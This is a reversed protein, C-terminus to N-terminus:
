YSLSSSRAGRSLQLLALAGGSTSNLRRIRMPLGRATVGMLGGGIARARDLHESFGIADTAAGTGVDFAFARAGCRM